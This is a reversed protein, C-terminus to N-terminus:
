VAQAGGVGGASGIVLCRRGQFSPFVYLIIYARKTRTLVDGLIYKANVLLKTCLSSIVIYETNQIRHRAGSSVPACKRSPM